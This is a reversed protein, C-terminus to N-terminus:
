HASQLLNRYYSLQTRLKKRRRLHIELAATNHLIQASELVYKFHLLIDSKTHHLHLTALMRYLSLTKEKFYQTSAVVFM